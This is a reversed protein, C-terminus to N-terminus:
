ARRPLPVLMPVRSRYNEYAEGFNACLFREEIRAKVAFFAIFGVAFLLDVPRARILEFSVLAMFAGTYIPHRVLGYPGTDVVRHGEKVEVGGAWLKGIHWRAWWCVVIGALLLGVMSWEFLPEHPWLRDRMAPQWATVLGLLVCFAIGAGYLPGTARWAVAGSTRGAWLASGAWSVLFIASIIRSASEPSVM